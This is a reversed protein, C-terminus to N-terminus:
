SLSKGQMIIDHRAKDLILGTSLLYTMSAAIRQSTAIDFQRGQSHGLIRLIRIVEPDTSAHINMDELPTFLSLFEDSYMLTTHTKAVIALPIGDGDLALMDGVEAGWVNLIYGARPNSAGTLVSGLEDILIYKYPM